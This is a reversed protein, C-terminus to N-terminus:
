TTQHQEATEQQPCQPSVMAVHAIGEDTATPTPPLEIRISVNSIDGASAAPEDTSSTSNMSANALDEATPAPTSPSIMVAHAIGEDTATPTYPLDIQISVSIDEASAAPAEPSRPPPPLLDPTPIPHTLPCTNNEIMGRIETHMFQLEEATFVQKVFNAKQTTLRSKPFDKKNPCHHFFIRQWEASKGNKGRQKMDVRCKSYEMAWVLTWRETRSWNVKDIDQKKDLDLSQFDQEAKESGNARIQDCEDKSIYTEIQTMLSNLNRVNTSQIKEQCLESLSCKAKRKAGDKTGQTRLVTFFLESRRM